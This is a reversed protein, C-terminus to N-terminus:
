PFVIEILWPSFITKLSVDSTITVPSCIAFGFLVERKTSISLVKSRELKYILVHDCGMYSLFATVM